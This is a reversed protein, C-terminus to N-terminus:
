KIKNLKTTFSKGNQFGVTVILKDDLLFLKTSFSDKVSNNELCNGNLKYYITDKEMVVFYKGNNQIEFINNIGQNGPIYYQGVFKDKSCSCFLFLFAVVIINKM